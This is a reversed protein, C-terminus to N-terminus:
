HPDGGRAGARPPVPEVAGGLERRGLEPLQSFGSARHARAGALRVSRGPLDDKRGGGAKSRRCSLSPPLPAVLVVIVYSVCGCGYTGGVVRSSSISFLCRVDAAM